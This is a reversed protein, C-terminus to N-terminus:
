GPKAFITEIKRLLAEHSATDLPAQSYIWQANPPATTRREFIFETNNPNNLDAGTFKIGFPVPKPEDSPIVSRLLDAVENWTGFTSEIDFGFEVVMTTRHTVKRDAPPRRFGFAKELFDFLDVAFEKAHETTSAGVLIGAMQFDCVNVVNSKDGVVFAGTQFVPTMLNFPQTSPSRAAAQFQYRVRIAELLTPFAVGDIPRMEDWPSHVSFYAEWYSIVKM